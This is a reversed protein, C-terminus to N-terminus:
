MFILISHQVPLQFPFRGGFTLQICHQACHPRDCHTTTLCACQLHLHVFPTWSDAAYLLPCCLCCLCLVKPCLWCWLSTLDLSFVPNHHMYTAQLVIYSISLMIYCIYGTIYCIYFPLLSYTIVVFSSIVVVNLDRCLYVSWCNWSHASQLARPM